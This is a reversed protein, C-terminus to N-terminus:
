GNACRTCSSARVERERLLRSSRVRPSASATGMGLGWTLAMSVGTLVAHIAYLVPAIFM